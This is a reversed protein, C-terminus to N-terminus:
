GPSSTVTGEEQSRARAFDPWSPRRATVASMWRHRRDWLSADAWQENLGNVINDVTKQVDQEGNIFKAMETKTPDKQIAKGDLALEDRGGPLPPSRDALEIEKNYLAFADLAAQQKFPYTLTLGSEVAPVRQGAGAQHLQGAPLHLGGM